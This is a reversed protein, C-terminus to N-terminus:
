VNYGMTMCYLAIAFTNCLLILTDCIPTTASSAPLQNAIHRGINVPYVKFKQRLIYRM